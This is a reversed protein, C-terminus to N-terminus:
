KNKKDKKSPRGVPRKGPIPNAERFRSGSCIYCDYLNSYAFNPLGPTYTFYMDSEVEYDIDDKLDAPVFKLAATYTPNNKYAATSKAPTNIEEVEYTHGNLTITSDPKVIRPQNYFGTNSTVKPKEEEIYKKISDEAWDSISNGKDDVIVMTIDKNEFCVNIAKDYINWYFEGRKNGICLLYFENDKLLNAFKAWNDTDRGSPSASMNVHSHGQFKLKNIVEDPLEMFWKACKAEDADVTSSTVTQPYVLIDEILYNSNVRSAIGYWALEKNSGNILAMMKAYADALVYVTPKEVGQAQLLTETTINIKLDVDGTASELLNKFIKLANEKAEQTLMIPKM